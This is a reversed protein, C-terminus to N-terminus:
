KHFHKGIGYLNGCAVIPSELVDGADAHVDILFGRTVVLATSAASLKMSANGDPDATINGLSLVFTGPLKCSGDHLHVAHLGATLGRISIWATVAGDKQFLEARGHEEDAGKLFALAVSKESKPPKPPAVTLDGCAIPPNTTTPAYAAVYFGSAVFNDAPGTPVTTVLTAHGREDAYLAPFTVAATNGPTMCSGSRLDLPYFAGPTLGSVRVAISLAGTRQKLKVVGKATQNAAPALRFVNENKGKGKGPHHHGPHGHGKHAAAAAPLAAACAVAALALVFRSNRM